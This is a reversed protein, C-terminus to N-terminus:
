WHYCTFDNIYLQLWRYVCYLIYTLQRKLKSFWSVSYPDIVCSGTQDNKYWDQQKKIRSWRKWTPQKGKNERRKCIMKKVKKSILISSKTIKFTEFDLDLENKNWRIWVSWVCWCILALLQKGYRIIKFRNRQSLECNNWKLFVQGFINWTKIHKIEKDITYLRVKACFCFSDLFLFCM